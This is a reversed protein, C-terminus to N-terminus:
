YHLLGYKPARQKSKQDADCHVGPLGRCGTLRESNRSGRGFWCLVFGEESRVDLTGHGQKSGAALLATPRDSHEHIAMGKYAATCECPHHLREEPLTIGISIDRRLITSDSAKLGVPQGPCRHM